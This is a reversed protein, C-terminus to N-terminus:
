VELVFTESTDLVSCNSNQPWKVLHYRDEMIMNLRSDVIEWSSEKRGEEREKMMM